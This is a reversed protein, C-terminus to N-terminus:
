IGNKDETKLNSRYTESYFGGEPHKELKLEEVLEEIRSLPVLNLPHAM